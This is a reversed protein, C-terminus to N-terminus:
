QEAEMCAGRQRRRLVLGGLLGLAWWGSGPADGPVVSCGGSDGPPVTGSDAQPAADMQAEADREMGADVVASDPVAADPLAADPMMADPTGMDVPAESVACVEDVCAFGDNCTGNGYCGCGEEGAPCTECQDAACRLGPDCTANGYCPCDLSGDPCPPPEICLDAECELGPNCTANGYCTCALTGPECGEPAVCLDARCVLDGDCSDDGRCACGATGEACVPVGCIGANCALAGDCIDDPLCACGDSGAPCGPAGCQGNNCVLEGDCGDDPRCDCGDSGAVCPADDPEVELWVEAQAAGCCLAHLRVILTTNADARFPGVAIQEGAPVRVNDLCPAGAPCADTVGVMLSADDIARTHLTYAAGPAVEFQLWIDPSPEEDFCAAEVASPTAHAFELMLRDDSNLALAARCDDGDVACRGADCAGGLCPTDNALADYSCGGDGDCQASDADECVGAPACQFDDGQCVGDVCRDNQTCAEADNCADGEAIPEAVCAPQDDQIACRGQACGDNLDSCDLPDGAVCEGAVCADGVTCPDGDADCVGDIEIAQVGLIGDCEFAICPNESELPPAEGAACRGGRCAERGDCLDGNGCPAGDVLANVQCEDAAENCSARQCALDQLAGDCDRAVGTCARNSCHDEVTCFRGDDCVTEESAASWRDPTEPNCVECPNDPNAAGAAVCAGGIVCANVPDHSVRGTDSDCVGVTCALGDDEIVRPAEICGTALANPDDPVCQAANCASAVCQNDDVEHTVDGTAPDCTDTTCAIGDDVQAPEGAVCEGSNPNCAEAGNCLDGDDCNVPDHAECQGTAPNCAEAGNCLDGDQECELPAFDCQGAVPDWGDTTCPDADFCGENQLTRRFFLRREFNWEELGSGILTGDALAVSGGPKFGDDFNPAEGFEYPVLLDLADGTAPRVRIDLWRGLSSVGRFDISGLPIARFRNPVDFPGALQWEDGLGRGLWYRQAGRDLFSLYRLGSSRDVGLALASSQDLLGADLLDNTEVVVGNNSDLRRNRVVHRGGDVERGVAWVAGDSPYATEFELPYERVLSWNAASRRYLVSRDGEGRDVVVHLWHAGQLSFQDRISPVDHLGALRGVIAEPTLSNGDIQRNYITYDCPEPRRCNDDDQRATMAQFESGFGVWGLGLDGRTSYDRFQAIQESSVADFSDPDYVLRTITHQYRDIANNTPEQDYRFIVLGGDELHPDLFELAPRDNGEYPLERQNPELFPASWPAEAPLHSITVPPSAFYRTEQNQDRVRVVVRIDDGIPTARVCREVFGDDPIPNVAASGTRARGGDALGLGVGMTDVAGTVLFRTPVCRGARNRDVVIIEGGAPSVFDVTTELPTRVEGIVVREVSLGAMDVARARVEIPTGDALGDPIRIVGRPNYYVECVRLEQEFDAATWPGNNARWEITAEVLQHNDRATLEVSVARGAVFGRVEGPVAYVEFRTISPPTADESPIPVSFDVPEGLGRHEDALRVTLVYAGNLPIPFDPHLNMDLTREDGPDPSFTYTRDSEFAGPDDPSGLAAHVYMRATWTGSAAGENTVTTSFNLTGCAERDPDAELDISVIRMQATDGNTIWEFVNSDVWESDPNVRTRVKCEVRAGPDLRPLHDSQADGFGTELEWPGGDIRCLLASRVRTDDIASGLEWRVEFGSNSVFAGNAPATIRGPILQFAAECVGDTCAQNDGCTSECATETFRCSNANCRRERVRCAGCFVRQPVADPNCYYPEDPGDEFDFFPRPDNHWATTGALLRFEIIRRPDFCTTAADAGMRRAHGDRVIFYENSGQLSPDRIICGPEAASDYDAGIVCPANEVLADFDAQPIVTMRDFGLDGPFMQWYVPESEITYCTGGQYYCVHPRADGKYPFGDLYQVDRQITFPIRPSQQGTTLDTAWYQYNGLPTNANSQYTHRYEGQGDANRDVTEVHGDPYRFSLRVAGNLSFGAGDQQILIGRGGIPPVVRVAPNTPQGIAVPPNPLVTSSRDRRVGEYCGALSEVLDWSQEEGLGNVHLYVKGDMGGIGLAWDMYGNEFTQRTTSRPELRFQTCISRLYLNFGEDGTLRMPNCIDVIRENEEGTPAGLIRPGAVRGQGDALCRYVGWFGSRILRPSLEGSGVLASWGDSGDFRRDVDPQFFYQLAIDGDLRTRGSGDEGPIPTPCGIHQTPSVGRREATSADIFSNLDVADRQRHSGPLLGHSCSHAEIFARPDILHRDSVAQRTPLYLPFVLQSPEWQMELHLHPCTRKPDRICADGITGLRQGARIKQGVQLPADLEIHLYLSFVESRVRAFNAPWHTGALLFPSLDEAEPLRHRIIVGDNRWYINSTSVVEGNAIAYVPQGLDCTAGGRECQMNFDMGPHHGPEDLCNTCYTGLDNCVSWWGNTVDASDAYCALGVANHVSTPRPALELPDPFHGDLDRVEAVDPRVPWVFQAATEQAAADLAMCSLVSHALMTWCLLRGIFGSTSTRVISMAKGLGRASVGM